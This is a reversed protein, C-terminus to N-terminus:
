EVTFKKSFNTIHLIKSVVDNCNIITIDHDGKNLDKQMNLLMGLASSDITLTKRLDVIVKNAALVNNQNYSGKFEHLMSFNFDGEISITVVEDNDSFKTNITM